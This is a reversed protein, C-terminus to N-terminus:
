PTQGSLKDPSNSLEYALVGALVAASVGIIIATRRSMGWAAAKDKRAGPSPVTSDQQPDITTMYGETLVASHTADSISVSGTLAAITVKGDNKLVEYRASKSAPTVTITDVKATMGSKTTVVAHGSELSISSGEYKLSSNSPMDVTNGNSSLSVPVTTASVLDGKLVAANRSVAAGNLMAPGSARLIAGNTEAMMLTAPFLVAMAFSVLSRTTSNRMM